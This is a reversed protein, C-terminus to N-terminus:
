SPESTSPVYKTAERIERVTRGFLKTKVWVWVLVLLQALDSVAAFGRLPFVTLWYTSQVVWTQQLSPIAASLNAVIEGFSKKAGVEIAIKTIVQVIM